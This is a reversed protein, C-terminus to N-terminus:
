DEMDKQAETMIETLRKSIYETYPMIEEYSMRCPGIVGVYGKYKDSGGWRAAVVTEGALESYTTDAGFIAGVNEGIDELISIIPDRRKILSLLKRATEENACVNYLANEGSLTVDKAEIEGVTEFVATLLPMVELSHIGGEAIVTQMYAKNLEGVTKGKIRREALDEFCDLVQASLNGHRFVRSRTRGDDTILLLMVSSRGINLLEVRKIRPHRETILCAIAPLGTLESLLKAAAAPISEVECNIENLAKDILEAKDPSISNASMLSNVYLRLGQSTPVRGASTHPQKLFGLECLESMENRLTASSPANELVAMLNKSGIPTGTEIYSKVIAKLVAQKRPSLEMKEGRKRKLM